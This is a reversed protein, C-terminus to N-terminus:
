WGARGTHAQEEVAVQLEVAAVFVAVVLGQHVGGHGRVARRPTHQHQAAAVAHGHALHQAVGTHLLDRQHLQVRVHGAQEAGVRQQRRQVAARQGVRAHLDDVGVGEGPQL